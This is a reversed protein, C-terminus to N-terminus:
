PKEKADHAAARDHTTRPRVEWAKYVCSGSSDHTDYLQGDKVCAVHGAMRLIFHGRKHKKCFQEATMRRKGKQAPFPLERIVNLAANRDELEKVLFFECARREGQMTYLM